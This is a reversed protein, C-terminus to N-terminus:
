SFTSLTRPVHSALKWWLSGQRCLSFSFHLSWYGCRTDGMYKATPVEYMDEGEVKTYTAQVPDLGDYTDKDVSGNLAFVNLSLLCTLVFVTIIVKKKM